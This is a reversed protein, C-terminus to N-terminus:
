CKVPRAAYKALREGDSARIEIGPIGLAAQNAVVYTRAPFGNFQPGRHSRVTRPGRQAGETIRVDLVRLAVVAYTVVRDAECDVM